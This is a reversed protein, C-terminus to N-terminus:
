VKIPDVIGNSEKGLGTDPLWGMKKLMQQGVNSEDKAISEGKPTLVYASPKRPNNFAMSWFM